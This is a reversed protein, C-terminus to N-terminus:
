VWVGSSQSGMGDLLKGRDTRRRGLGRSGTHVLNGDQRGDLGSFEM